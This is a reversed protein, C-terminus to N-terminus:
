RSSRARGDIVFFLMPIVGHKIARAVRDRAQAISGKTAIQAASEIRVVIGCCASPAIEALCADGLV